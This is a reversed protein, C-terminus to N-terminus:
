KNFSGSMFGSRWSSIDAPECAGSPVQIMDALPEGFTKIPALDAQAQELDGSHCVVIAIMPTGHAEEPLWPAPPANRRLVVATLERPSVGLAVM